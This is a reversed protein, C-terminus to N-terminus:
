GFCENYMTLKYAYDDHMHILFSYITDPVLVRLTCNHLTDSYLRHVSFLLVNIM